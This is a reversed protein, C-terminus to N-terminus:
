GKMLEEYACECRDMVLGTIDGEIVQGPAVGEMITRDQFDTVWYRWSFDFTNGEELPFSCAVHLVDMRTRAYYSRGLYDCQSPYWKYNM